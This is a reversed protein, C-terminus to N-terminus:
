VTAEKLSFDRIMRAKLLELEEPPLLDGDETPAALIFDGAIVHGHRDVEYMWSGCPNVPLEKIVGEEDVLLLMPTGFYQDMRKTHVTEFHGGVVRQIDRFDNFDVDVMSIEGSTTVKLTKNM